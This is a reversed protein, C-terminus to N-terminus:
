VVKLRTDLMKKFREKLKLVDFAFKFNSKLLIECIKLQNFGQISLLLVSHYEGLSGVWCKAAEFDPTHLVFNQTHLNYRAETRMSKTDTGHAIETLAFCGTIQGFFVGKLM